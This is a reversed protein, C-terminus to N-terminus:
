YFQVSNILEYDPQLYALLRAKKDQNQVDSLYKTIKKYMTTNYKINQKPVNLFNNEFGQSILWHNLKYNLMDGVKFFTTQAILSPVIWTKQLHTHHGIDFSNTLFIWDLFSDTSEIKAIAKDASSFNDLNAYVDEVFGSIWRQLPDRLITFTICEQYIKSNVIQQWEIGKIQQWDLEKLHKSITSSANKPMGHYCYNNKYIWM